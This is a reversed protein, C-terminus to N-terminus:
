LSKLVQEGIAHDQSYRGGAIGLAGVLAGDIVIPLGGPILTIEPEKMVANLLFSDSKIMELVAQTSTKFNVSTTAKRQAIDLNIYGTQESRAAAVIRGGTDVIAVAIPVGQERGAKVAANILALAVDLTLAM